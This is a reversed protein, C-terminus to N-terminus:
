GDAREGATVRKGRKMNKRKRSKAERCKARSGSVPAPADIREGEFWYEQEIVAGNEDRVIMAPGHSPDRHFCHGHSAYHESTTRNEKDYYVWAPGDNPDRQITGDKCSYSLTVCGETNRAIHAPGSVRHTQGDRYYEECLVVGTDIDRSFLAPGDAEYRHLKGRVVYEANECGDKVQRWAPGRAPDRHREGNEAFIELIHKGTADTHIVAPGESFPRHWRGDLFYEEGLVDRGEFKSYTLAPGDRWDRHLKGEIVYETHEGLENSCSYAPGRKPDRHLTGHELYIEGVTKGRKTQIIAPGAGSPRHLIGNEHFEQHLIDGGEFDSNIVAPGMEHPRHLKGNVIYQQSEGNSTVRTWAPGDKPDRHLVGGRFYSTTVAGDDSNLVIPAWPVDAYHSQFTEMSPPWRYFPKGGTFKNVADGARKLMIEPDPSRQGEILAAVHHLVEVTAIVDLIRDIFKTAPDAKLGDGFDIQATQSDRLCNDVWTVAVTLQRPMLDINKLNALYRVSAALDQTVSIAASEQLPGPAVVFSM